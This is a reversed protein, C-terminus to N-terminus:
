RRLFFATVGIMLAVSLLTVYEAPLWSFFSTLFVVMGATGATLEGMMEVSTKMFTVIGNYMDIVKGAMRSMLSTYETPVEAPPKPDTPNTPDTPILDKLDEDVDTQPVGVVDSYYYNNVVYNYQYNNTTLDMNNTEYTTIGRSINTTFGGLEDFDLELDNEINIDPLQITVPANLQVDNPPKYTSPTKLPIDYVNKTSEPILIGDAHLITTKIGALSQKIKKWSSFSFGENRPLSTYTHNMGDKYLWFMLFDGTDEQVQLEYNACPQGGKVTSVFSKQKGAMTDIFTVLVKQEYPYADFKVSVVENFWEVALNNDIGNIVKGPVVDLCMGTNYYPDVPTYSVDVDYIPKSTNAKRETDKEVIVTSEEKLITAIKTKDLSSAPVRMKGDKSLSVKKKSFDFNDANDVVKKAVKKKIAEYAPKAVYKWGLNAVVDVVLAEAAWILVPAVAETKKPKVAANFILSISLLMIFVKSFLGKM